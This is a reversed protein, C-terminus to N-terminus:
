RRHVSSLKLCPHETSNLVGWVRVRQLGLYLKSAVHILRTHVSLGLDSLLFFLSEKTELNAMALKVFVVDVHKYQM